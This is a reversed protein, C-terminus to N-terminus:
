NFSINGSKMEVEVPPTNFTGRTVSITQPKAGTRLVRLILMQEPMAWSLNNPMMFRFIEPQKKVSINLLM